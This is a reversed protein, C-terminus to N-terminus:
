AAVRTTYGPSTEVARALLAADETLRRRLPLAGKIPQSTRIRNWRPPQGPRKVLIEVLAEVRDFDRNRRAHKVITELIIM